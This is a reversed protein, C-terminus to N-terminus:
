RGAKCPEREDRERLKDSHNESFGAAVAELPDNLAAGEGMAAWPEM